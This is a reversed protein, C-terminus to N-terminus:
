NSCRNTESKPNELTLTASKGAVEMKINEIDRNKKSMEDQSLFASQDFVEGTMSTPKNIRLADLAIPSIDANNGGTLKKGSDVTQGGIGIFIDM